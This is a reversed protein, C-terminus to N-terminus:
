VNDIKDSLESFETTNIEKDAIKTDIEVVNLIVPQNIKNKVGVYQPPIILM